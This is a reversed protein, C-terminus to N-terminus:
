DKNLEQESVVRLQEQLKLQRDLSGEIFKQILDHLAEELSSKWKDFGPPNNNLDPLKIKLTEAMSILQSVSVDIKSENTFWSPITNSKPYEFTIRVGLRAYFLVLGSFLAFIPNPILPRLEAVKTQLTMTQKLTDYYDDINQIIKKVDQPNKKEASTLLSHATFFKACNKQIDLYTKWLFMVAEYQKEFLYEKESSAGHLAQKKFDNQQITLLSVRENEAALKKELSILSIEIKADDNQSIRNAWIKGLYSSLGIVIYYLPNKIIELFVELMNIGM